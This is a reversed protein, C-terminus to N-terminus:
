TKINPIEHISNFILKRYKQAQERAKWKGGGEKGMDLILVADCEAIWSYCTKMIENMKIENEWFAFMSQPVFPLHGKKMIEKGIINAKEINSNIEEVTDANYSGIVFIKMATHNAVSYNDIYEFRQVKKGEIEKYGMFMELPRVWFQTTDSEYLCEYYVLDELTESHKVLKYAKYLKGKYHKYVGPKFEDM